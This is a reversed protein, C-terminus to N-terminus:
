AALTVTTTEAACPNGARVHLAGATLDVVVSAITQVDPNHVPDAHKCVSKPYNSHDSLIAFLGDVTHTGNGQLLLKEVRRLRMRSNLLDGWELAQMRPDVANNTHALWDREAPIVAYDGGSVEVDYIDGAANAILHNNGNARGPRFTRRLAGELFTADLVDRYALLKPSGPRIDRFYLANGVSGIGCDNMGQYLLCGAYAFGVFAPRGAPRARVVYRLPWRHAGADENHALLVRGGATGGEGVALSTCEDDEEADPNPSAADRGALFRIEQLANASFLVELEVGSGGAMGRLEQMCHPVTAEAHPILERTIQLAREWGLTRTVAARHVEAVDRLGDRLSEGIAQGIELHTGAVDIVPLTTRGQETTAM